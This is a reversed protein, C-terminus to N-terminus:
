NGEGPISGMMGYKQTMHDKWEKEADISDQKKTDEQAQLYTNRMIHYNMADNQNLGQPLDGNVGGTNMSQAWPGEGRAAEALMRQKYIDSVDQQQQAQKAKQQQQQQRVKTIADGFMGGIGLTNKRHLSEDLIRDFLSDMEAVGAAEVM